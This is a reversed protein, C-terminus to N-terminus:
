IKVPAGTIGVLFGSFPLVIIMNFILYTIASFVDVPKGFMLRDTLAYLIIKVIIVAVMIHAVFFNRMLAAVVAGFSDALNYPAPVFLPWDPQVPIFFFKIAHFFPILLLTYFFAFVAGHMIGLFITLATTLEIGFRRLVGTMGLIIKDFALLAFIIVLPVGGMFFSLLAGTGLIGLTILLKQRFTLRFM